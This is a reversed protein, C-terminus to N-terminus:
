DASLPAKGDSADSNSWVVIDEPHRRGRLEIQGRDEFMMGGPITVGELTSASVVLDTGLSACLSELRAVVNLADGHMALSSRRQGVRTTVINGVHLGGRLDPASGYREEYLRKRALLVHKAELYCRLGTGGDQGGGALWSIILGDGLYQYVQGNWASIVPDLDSFVDRIMFSYREPGLREALGSSGKLDLFLFVREELIPIHYRGSLLDWAERRTMLRSFTMVVTLFVCAIVAVILDRPGTAVLYAGPAEMLPVDLILWMRVVNVLVMVTFAAGVYFLFRKFTLSAFSGTRGWGPVLYEECLGILAGLVAGGATAFATITLRQGGDIVSITYGIVTGLVLGFGVPFALKRLRASLPVEPNM